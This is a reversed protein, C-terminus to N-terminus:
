AALCAPRTRIDDRRNRTVAASGKKLTPEMSGGNVAYTHYGFLTPLTAAGVLALVGVMAVIAGYYIVRTGRLFAPSRSPAKLARVRDRISAARQYLRQLRPQRKSDTLEDATVSREKSM